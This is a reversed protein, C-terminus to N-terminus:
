GRDKALVAGGIQNTCPAVDEPTPWATIFRDMEARTAFGFWTWGHVTAGGRQWRGERENIVSCEPGSQYLWHMMERSRPDDYSGSYANVMWPTRAWVRQMLDSRQADGYDFAIVREYLETAM